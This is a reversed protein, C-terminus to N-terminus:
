LYEGTEQLYRAMEASLPLNKAYFREIQEVSTGANKALNYINVKGDSKIIRMCIATHRISYISHIKNTIPDPKIGSRKILEKFQRQIIKGATIRNTYSPLFLYDDRSWNPNLSQIRKYVGVGDSLSNVIRFGTKGNKITIILRDPNNAITIDHHRLEYLESTIPRVFSNLLFLIIEKLEVTVPIWRVTVRDKIMQDITKLLLEVEDDKKTVLPYFRFFPRPNDQQKSRPTDPLSSIIGTDRAVKLINRFTALVTNKNSAAWHSKEKGLFDMYSVFDATSITRIDRSGFRDLLGWDRAEICWRMAKLSGISREGKLVRADERQLLELSFRTFQYDKPIEPPSLWKDRAFILAIKQAKHSDTVLTSKVRYCGRERDWVRM